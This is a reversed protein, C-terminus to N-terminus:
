FPTQEDEDWEDADPTLDQWEEQDPLSWSLLPETFGAKHMEWELEQRLERVLELRDGPPVNETRLKGAYPAVTAAAAAWRPAARAAQKIITERFFQQISPLSDESVLTLDALSLDTRLEEFLKGTMKHPLTAFQRRTTHLLFGLDKAMWGLWPHARRCVFIPVMPQAPHQMQLAAAKGLLQYVEKHIPYFWQRRNKMEMPLAFPLRPLGTAPDISHLWAGSDLAGYLKVGMVNRVEGFGPEMPILHTGAISLSHRLVAEGADGSTTTVAFFRGYLQGKRAVARNIATERRRRDAPVLLKVVRNGKTKHTVEDLAHLALLGQVAETVIHSHLWDHQENYVVGRECLRAELEAHAVALEDDLLDLVAQRALQLWDNKSRAQGAGHGSTEKPSM